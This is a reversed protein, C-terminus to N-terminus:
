CTPCPVVKKGNCVPCIRINKNGRSRLLQAQLRDAEQQAQTAEAARQNRIAALRDSEGNFPNSTSWAKWAAMYAANAQDTRQQAREYASSLDASPAPRSYSASHSARPRDASAAHASGPGLTLALATLTAWYLLAHHQHAYRM